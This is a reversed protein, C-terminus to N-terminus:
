KRGKEEDLMAAIADISTSEGNLTGKAEMPAPTKATSGIIRAELDKKKDALRQAYKPDGSKREKGFIEAYVPDNSKGLGLRFERFQDRATGLSSLLDRMDKGLAKFDPGKCFVSRCAALAKPLERLRGITKSTIAATKVKIELYRLNEGFDEFEVINELLENSFEDQGLQAAEVAREFYDEALKELDERQTRIDVVTQAVLKEKEFQKELKTKM